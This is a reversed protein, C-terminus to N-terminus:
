VPFVHWIAPLVSKFSDHAFAELTYSERRVLQSRRSHQQQGLQKQWLGGHDVFIVRVSESKM